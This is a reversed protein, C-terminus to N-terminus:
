MHSPHKGLCFAAAFFLSLSSATRASSGDDEEDEEEEEPSDSQNHKNYLCQLQNTIAISCITDLQTVVESVVRVSRVETWDADLAKKM